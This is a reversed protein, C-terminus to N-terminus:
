IGQSLARSKHSGLGSVGKRAKPAGDLGVDHGPPLPVGDAGVEWPPMPLADNGCRPMKELLDQPVTSDVTVFDQAEANHECDVLCSDNHAQCCLSLQWCSSEKRKKGLRRADQADCTAVIDEVSFGDALPNPTYGLPSPSGKQLMLLVTSLLRTSLPRSTAIIRELRSFRGDVRTRTLYYLAAFSFTNCNKMIIDYTGPMFHPTISRVFAEPSVPTSGAEIVETLPCGAAAAESAEQEESEAKKQGGIGTHSWFAPATIIGDADFFYEFRGMIISTHWAQM